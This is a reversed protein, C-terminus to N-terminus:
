RRAAGFAAFPARRRRQESSRILGALQPLLAAELRDALSARTEDQEPGDLLLDTVASAVQERAQEYLEVKRGSQYTHCGRALLDLAQRLRATVADEAGLRTCLERYIPEAAQFARLDRVSYRRAPPTEAAQRLRQKVEHKPDRGGSSSAAGARREPAPLAESSVVWRGAVKRAELEGHQILYRVQRESKGLLSAAESLTLQVPAPEAEAM